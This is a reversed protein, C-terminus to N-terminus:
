GWGVPVAARRAADPSGGPAVVVTVPPGSRLGDPMGRDGRVDRSGRVGQRRRRAPFIVVRMAGHSTRGIRRSLGVAHSMLGRRSLGGVGVTVAPIGAQVPGGIEVLWAAGQAMHNGDRVM